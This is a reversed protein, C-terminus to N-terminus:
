IEVNVFIPDSCEVYFGNDGVLLNSSSVYGAVSSDWHEVDWKLGKTTLSVPGILPLLGVHKLKRERETVPFEDLSKYRLGDKNMTIFNKGKKVFLVFEEHENNLMFFTFNPRTSDCKIMKSITAITQDFRGGIAGVLFVKVTQLKTTTDLIETQEFQIIGDYDDISHFSDRSFGHAKLNILSIVKDLDSSYQSSQSKVLVGNEHYFLRVSNRISDLDGVIYHPLYQLPDLQNKICYDYLQNAGGDGCVILTSYEWIESFFDLPLHIQQNLLVMVKISDNNKSFFSLPAIINVGSESNHSNSIENIRSSSSSSSSSSSLSANIPPEVHILDPNETVRQDEELSM